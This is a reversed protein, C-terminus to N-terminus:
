SGVEWKGSAQHASSVEELVGAAGRSHGRQGGKASEVGLDGARQGRDGARIALREGIGRERGRLGGTGGVGVRAEVAVEALRHARPIAADGADGIRLRVAAANPDDGATGPSEGGGVVQCWFADRTSCALCHCDGLCVGPELGLRHLEGRHGAVALHAPLRGDLLVRELHRKGFLGVEEGSGAGRRETGARPEDVGAQAEDVFLAVERGGLAGVGLLVDMALDGAEVDGDGVGGGAAELAAAFERRRHAHTPLIQRATGGALHSTRTRGLVAGEVVHDFVGAASGFVRLLLKGGPRDSGALVGQHEVRRVEPEGDVLANAM